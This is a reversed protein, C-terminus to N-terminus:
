WRILLRAIQTWAGWNTPVERLARRLRRGAVGYDGTERARRGWLLHWSSLERRVRARLPVPLPKRLLDRLLDAAQEYVEESRHEGIQGPHCAMTFDPENLFYATADPQLALGLSLAHDIVYGHREAWSWIQRVAAARYMTAGVFVAGRLAAEFYDASALRGPSVGAPRYLDAPSGDEPQRRYTSFVATVDPTAAAAAIRNALFDPDYYDDDMLLCVFEGRALALGAGWNGPVGLTHPNRRYVIRPDRFSGVVDATDDTSGDDSIVLEFDAFSQALVAAVARRLGWSRNFTPIVVSTTPRTM